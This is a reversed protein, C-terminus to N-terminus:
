KNVNNITFCSSWSSRVFDNLFHTINNFINDQLVFLYDRVSYRSFRLYVLKTDLTEQILKFRNLYVDHPKRDRHNYIILSHGLNFYHNIEEYSIYKNGNPGGIHQSKVELGNDPDVYIIKARQLEIISDKFWYHRNKLREERTQQSYDLIQSYFIIDKLYDSKEIEDINRRNNLICEKLFDYLETDCERLETTKLLYDIHKGDTKVDNETLYWNIGIEMQPFAKKLSRILGYKGFDGIDGFYQNKM